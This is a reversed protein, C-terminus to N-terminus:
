PVSPCLYFAAPFVTSIALIWISIGGYFRFDPDDLESTSNTVKQPDRTMWGVTVWLDTGTDLLTVGISFWLTM